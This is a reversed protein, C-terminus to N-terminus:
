QMQEGYGGHNLPISQYSGTTENLQDAPMMYKVILRDYLDDQVPSFLQVPVNKSPKALSDYAVMNLNHDVKQTRRIWAEYDSRSVARVKFTMSSFGSGSINAPSGLYTGPKTANLHVTTNMGPMAYIQSGLAPIWFSNMVSDSTVDFHITANTPIVAENVTAIHQDPYIFLWKWDLAVVQIHEHPGSVNFERYPDLRHSSVWTVVCLVGIILIPIGWWISEYLRSGDWDPRYEKKKPNGERYRWAIAITMVFVPVVVLASLFLAFIILQHEQTSIAGRPQMVPVNHNRVYWAASGLV